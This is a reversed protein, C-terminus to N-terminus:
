GRRRRGLLLGGIALLVATAPEPVIQTFTLELEPRRSFTLNDASALITGNRDLSEDMARLVVGLNDVSGASIWSDVVSGGIANAMLDFTYVTGAPDDESDQTSGPSTLVTDITVLSYGDGPEGLGVGGAWNVGPTGVVKQNWSSEGDPATANGQTGEPWNSNSLVMAYMGILAEGNYNNANNQDVTFRLKAASLEYDVPILSSANVLDDLGDLRVLGREVRNAGSLKSGVFMRDSAGTNNSALQSSIFQDITGAYDGTSDNNVGSGGSGFILDLDTGDQVSVIIDANAGSHGLLLVAALVLGPAIAFTRRSKQTHHRM